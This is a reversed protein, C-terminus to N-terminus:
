EKEEGVYFINDVGAMTATYIVKKVSDSPLRKDFSVNINLGKKEKDNDASERLQTIEQYLPQILRSEKKHAMKKNFRGKELKIKFDEGIKLEKLSVTINENKKIVDGYENTSLKINDDVRVASDSSQILIFIILTTMVDILPTLNLAKSKKKKFM